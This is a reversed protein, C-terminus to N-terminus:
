RAEEEPIRWMRGEPGDEVPPLMRRIIEGGVRADIAQHRGLWILYWMAGFATLALAIGTWVSDM